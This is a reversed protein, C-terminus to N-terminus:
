PTSTVVSVVYVLSTFRRYINHTLCLSWSWRLGLRSRRLLNPSMKRMKKYSQFSSTKVLLETRLKRSHNDNLELQTYWYMDTRCADIAKEEIDFVGQIGNEDMDQHYQGVLYLTM